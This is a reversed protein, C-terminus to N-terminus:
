RPNIRDCNKCNTETPLMSFGCICKPLNVSCGKCCFVDFLLAQSPNQSSRWPEVPLISSQQCIECSVIRSNRCRECKKNSNQNIYQCSCKWSFLTCPLCLVKSLPVILKCSKCVRNLTKSNCYGCHLSQGILLDKFCSACNCTKYCNQCYKTNSPSNCISCTFKFTGSPDFSQNCNECFLMNHENYFGCNQCIKKASSPNKISKPVKKHHIRVKNCVKCNTFKSLLKAGCSCLELLPYCLMCVFFERCDHQSLTSQCLVCGKSTRELDMGCENCFGRIDIQRHRNPANYINGCDFCEVKSQATLVHGDSCKNGYKVCDACVYSNSAPYFKCQNICLGDILKSKCKWCYKFENALKPKKCVGCKFNFYCQFCEQDKNHVCKKNQTFNHLFCSQCTVQLKEISQNCSKCNYNDLWQECALCAIPQTKYLAKACKSCNSLKFCSLCYTTNMGKFCLICSKRDNETLIRQPENCNLCIMINKANIQGCNCKWTLRSHIDQCPEHNSNWCFFCIEEIMENEGCLFKYYINLAASLLSNKEIYEQVGSDEISYILVIPFMSYQLMFFNLYEIYISPPQEELDSYIECPNIQVYITRQEGALVMGHLFVKGQNGTLQSLDLEPDMGLIFKLLSSLSKTQWDLSFILKKIPGQLHTQGKLSNIKCSKNVCTSSSPLHFRDVLWNYFQFYSLDNPIIMNFVEQPHTSLYSGCDCTTKQIFHTSDKLFNLPHRKSKSLSDLYDMKNIECDCISILNFSAYFM